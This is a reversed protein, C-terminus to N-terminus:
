AMAAIGPRGKSGPVRLATEGRDLLDRVATASRRADLTLFDM